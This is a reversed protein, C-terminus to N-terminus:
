GLADAGGTLYDTHLTTRFLHPPSPLEDGVAAQCVDFNEFRGCEAVELALM